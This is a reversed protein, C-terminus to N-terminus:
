AREASVRAAKARRALEATAERSPIPVGLVDLCIWRTVDLLQERDVGTAVGMGEMMAVLDNTSLNGSAGPAYPCGGLGGVSADFIDLGELMAAYTNALATGRTDHFHGALDMGPVAERLAAVLRRVQSPNAMGTTDGLSLEGIGMADLQRAIALTAGPSVDGEYPCGFVVSLYARVRRGDAQAAETVERLAEIAESIGKNLNRRSHTETASMFVAVVPVDAAAAAAYGKLNPVLASYAVGERRRVGAAVEAADAMQPIWRPHVFATMEIAPLGAEGLAEVLRIKRETPVHAAENQLGDRPGVEVVRIRDPLTPM